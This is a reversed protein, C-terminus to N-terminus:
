SCTRHGVEEAMEGDVPTAIGSSIDDVAYMMKTIVNKTTSCRDYRARMKLGHARDIDTPSSRSPHVGVATVAYTNFTAINRAYTPLWKMYQKSWLTSSDLHAAM